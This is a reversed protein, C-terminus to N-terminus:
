CVPSASAIGLTSWPKADLQSEPLVPVGEQRGKAPVRDNMIM